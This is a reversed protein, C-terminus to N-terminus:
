MGIFPVHHSKACCGGIAPPPYSALVDFPGNGRDKQILLAFFVFLISLAFYTEREWESGFDQGKKGSAETKKGSAEQDFGQQKRPEALLKIAKCSNLFVCL